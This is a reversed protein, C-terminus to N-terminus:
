GSGLEKAKKEKDLSAKAHNALREVLQARAAADMAMCPRNQLVMDFSHMTEVIRDCATVLKESQELMQTMVRGMADVTMFLKDRIMDELHTVRAALRIEREQSQNSYQRFMYGFFTFASVTLVVLVAAEWSDEAATAVARDIGPTQALFM